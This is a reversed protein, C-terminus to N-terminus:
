GVLAKAEEETLGIAALKAIAAEKLAKNEAFLEDLSKQAPIEGVIEALEEADIEIETNENTLADYQNIKPM